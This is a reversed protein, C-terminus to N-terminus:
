QIANKRQGFMGYLTPMLLLNLITSSGLGCVIVWAMPYEIEHGPIDGYYIIPLLGLIVTSITMVIPAIREEAGRQILAPGFTMGEVDELHRFHSILM